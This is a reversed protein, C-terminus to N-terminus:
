QDGGRGPPTVSTRDPGIAELVSETRALLSGPLERGYQVEVWQRLLERLTPAPNGEDLVLGHIRTDRGRSDRVAPADKEASHAM